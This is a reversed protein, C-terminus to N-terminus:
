SSTPLRLYTNNVMSMLYVPSQPHPHAGVLHVARARGQQLGPVAIPSFALGKPLEHLALQRPRGSFLALPQLLLGDLFRSRSGFTATIGRGGGRTGRFCPLLSLIILHKELGCFHPKVLPDELAVPEM